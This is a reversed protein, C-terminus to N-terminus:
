HCSGAQCFSNGCGLCEIHNHGDIIMLRFASESCKPCTAMFAQKINGFKDKVECPVTTLTEPQPLAQASM